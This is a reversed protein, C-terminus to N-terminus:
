AFVGFDLEALQVQVVAFDVATVNEVSEVCKDGRSGHGRIAAISSLCKPSLSM